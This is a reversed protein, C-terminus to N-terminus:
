LGGSYSGVPIIWPVPLTLGSVEYRMSSEGTIIIGQWSASPSCRRGWDWTMVYSAM